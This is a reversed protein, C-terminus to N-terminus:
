TSMWVVMQVKSPWGVFCNYRLHVHLLCNYRLHADLYDTKLSLLPADVDLLQSCGDVFTHLGSGVANIHFSGVNLSLM